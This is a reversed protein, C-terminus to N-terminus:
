WVTVIASTLVVGYVQPPLPSAGKGGSAAIAVREGRTFLRNGAIVAHVEEEFQSFFCPTCVIAGNTPRRISAKAGCASCVRPPMGSNVRQASRMGM